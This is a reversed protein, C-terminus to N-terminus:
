PKIVTGDARRAPGWSGGYARERYPFKSAMKENIDISDKHMEITARGYELEFDQSIKEAPLKGKKRM